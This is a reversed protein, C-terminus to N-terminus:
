QLPELELNSVSRCQMEVAEQLLYVVEEKEGEEEVEEMGVVYGDVEM